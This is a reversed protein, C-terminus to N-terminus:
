YDQFPIPNPPQNFELRHYVFAAEYVTLRSPREITGRTVYRERPALVMESKDVAKGDKGVTEFSLRSLERVSLNRRVSRTGYGANM